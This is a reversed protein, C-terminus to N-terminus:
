LKIDKDEFLLQLLKTLSERASKKQKLIKEAESIAQWKTAHMYGQTEAYDQLSQDYPMLGNLVAERYIDINKQVVTLIPDPVRVITTNYPAKIGRGGKPKNSM